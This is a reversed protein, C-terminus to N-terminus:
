QNLNRYQQLAKKWSIAFNLNNQLADQTEVDRNMGRLWFDILDDENMTGDFTKFKTVVEPGADGIAARFQMANVSTMMDEQSSRLTYFGKMLSSRNIERNDPDSFDFSEQKFFANDNLESDITASIKSFADVSNNAIREAVAFEEANRQEAEVEDNLIASPGLKENIRRKLALNKMNIEKYFIHGDESKLAIVATPHADRGRMNDIFKKTQKKDLDGNDDHVTMLLLRKDESDTAVGATTIGLVTFKGKYVDQAVQESGEMQVGDTRYMDIDHPDLEVQGNVVERELVASAVDSEFGEYIKNAGAIMFKDNFLWQYAKYAVGSPTSSEAHADFGTEDLNYNTAMHTWPSNSINQAIYKNGKNANDKYFNVSEFTESNYYDDTKTGEPMMAMMTQIGTSVNIQRKDLKPTPEKSSKQTSLNLAARRAFNLADRNSGKGGYGMKFMFAFLDEESPNKDEPHHMQYNSLIKLYNQDNILIDRLPIDTALDYNRADPLDIESMIGGYTIKGGKNTKYSDMSDVDNPLLLHGLGKEKADIIKTLNAKNEKYISFEPSNLISGSYNNMLSLGGNSQFKKRSGGFAKVKERIDRQFRAAAVQVQKKDHVLLNDAQKNINDYYQQEQAQAIQSEQQKQKSYQALQLTANYNEDSLRDNDISQALAAKGQGGPQFM